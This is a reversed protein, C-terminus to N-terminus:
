LGGDVRVNPVAFPGPLVEDSAADIRPNADCPSGERGGNANLLDRGFKTIEGGPTIYGADILHRATRVYHGQLTRVQGTRILTAFLELTQKTDLYGAEYAELIDVSGTM